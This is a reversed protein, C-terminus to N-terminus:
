FKWGHAKSDNFPGQLVHLAPKISFGPPLPIPLWGPAAPVLCPRWVRPGSHKGDTAQGKGYCLWHRYNQEKGGLEKELPCGRLRTFVVILVRLTRKRQIFYGTERIKGWIVPHIGSGESAKSCRFKRRKLLIQWSVCYGFHLLPSKHGVM